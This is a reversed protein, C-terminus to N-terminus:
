EFTELIKMVDKLLQKGEESFNEFSNNKNAIVAMMFNDAMIEDPHIIYQTNDKIQEFFDGNHEAALASEGKQNLGLTVQNETIKILPFLDFFLYAFFTPMNSQYGEKTSLIVPLAMQTNGSQDKLNIAYDRRVGDPNTLLKDAVSSPLILEEDFYAFGILSYMKDRFEKNYRSLLHFIEHLMVPMQADVSPEEFINNPLIIANERTYYVNPGYHNTKTKILEITEPMLKSNIKDLASKAEEFVNKMFEEEEPNFDEMETKLFERYMKKAEVRSEPMETKKMQISMDAITISEFFGDTADKIIKQEADAKNLFVLTEASKDTSKSNSEKKSSKCAIFAVSLFLLFGIKLYGFKM